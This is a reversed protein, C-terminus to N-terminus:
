LVSTDDMGLSYWNWLVQSLLCSIRWYYMLLVYFLNQCFMFIVRVPMIFVSSLCNLQMFLFWSTAEVICNKWTIQLDIVCM